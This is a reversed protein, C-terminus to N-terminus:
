AGRGRRSVYPMGADQKTSRNSLGWPGFRLTDRERQLVNTRPVSPNLWDVVISACIDDYLVHVTATRPLFKAIHDATKRKNRTLRDRCAEFQLYVDKITEPVAAFVDWGDADYDVSDTSVALAKLKPMTTRIKSFLRRFQDHGIESQTYGLTELRPFGGSFNLLIFRDEVQYPCIALTVLEDHAEILKRASELPPPGRFVDFLPRATEVASSTGDGTLAVQPTAM